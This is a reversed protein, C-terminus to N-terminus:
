RGEGIPGAPLPRDGPEAPAFGGLQVGEPHGVAPPDCPEYTMRFIEDKCPYLENKVGRIIWDGPMAIMLGEFTGVEIVETKVGGIWRLAPGARGSSGDKSWEVIEAANAGIFRIAEVEVPRKRYKV